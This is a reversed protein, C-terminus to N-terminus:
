FLIDKLSQKLSKRLHEIRVKFVAILIPDMFASTHNVAFIVPGKDPIARTNHLHISNFYAKLTPYFLWKFISYLMATLILM